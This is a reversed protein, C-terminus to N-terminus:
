DQCESRHMSHPLTDPNDQLTMSVLSFFLALQSEQLDKDSFDEFEKRLISIRIVLPTDALIARWIIFHTKKNSIIQRTEKWTM